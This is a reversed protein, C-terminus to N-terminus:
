VTLLLLITSVLNLRGTTNYYKDHLYGAYFGIFYPAARLHSKIYVQDFEPRKTINVDLYPLASLQESYVKIFTAAISTIIVGFLLILGLRRKHIIFFCILLGVLFFHFDCALSWTHLMCQFMM